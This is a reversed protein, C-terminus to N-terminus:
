NEIKAKCPATRDLSCVRSTYLGLEHEIADMAIHVAHKDAAEALRITQPSPGDIASKLNLRFEDSSPADRSSIM